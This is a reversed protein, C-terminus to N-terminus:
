HNKDHMNPTDFIKLMRGQNNKSKINKALMEYTKVLGETNMRASPYIFNNDLTGNNKNLIITVNQSLSVFPFNKNVTMPKKTNSLLLFLFEKLAKNEENEHTKTECLQVYCRPGKRVSKNAFVFM